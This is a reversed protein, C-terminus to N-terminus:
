TLARVRRRPRLTGRDASGCERRHEVVVPREKCRVHKSCSHPSACGPDIWSIRSPSRRMRAHVWWSWAVVVFAVCASARPDDVGQIALPACRPRGRLAALPPSPSYAGPPRVCRRGRRRAHHLRCVGRPPHKMLYASRSSHASPPTRFPRSEQHPQYTHIVHCVRATALAQADCVSACAEIIPM